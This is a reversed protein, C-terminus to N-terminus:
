YKLNILIKSAELFCNTISLIISGHSKDKEEPIKGKLSRLNILCSDLAKNIEFKNKKKIENFTKACEKIFESILEDNM